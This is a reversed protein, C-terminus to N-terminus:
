KEGAGRKHCGPRAKFLDLLVGGGGGGGGSRLEWRHRDPSLEQWYRALSLEANFLGSLLM